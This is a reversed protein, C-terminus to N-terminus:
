KRGQSVVYALVQDIDTKNFNQETGYAKEAIYIELLPCREIFENRDKTLNEVIETCVKYSYETDQLFVRVQRAVETSLKLLKERSPGKIAKDMWDLTRRLPHEPGLAKKYEPYKGTRLIDYAFRMYHTVIRDDVYGGTVMETLVLGDRLLNFKRLTSGELDQFIGTILSTLEVANDMNELKEKDAWKVGYVHPLYTGKDYFLDVIKMVKSLDYLSYRHNCRRSVPDVVLFKDLVVYLFNKTPLEAAGKEWYDGNSGYYMGSNKFKLIYSYWDTSPKSVVQDDEGKTKLREKRREAAVRRAEKREVEEKKIAEAGAQKMDIGIRLIHPFEAVLAMAEKKTSLLLFPDTSDSWKMYIRVHRKIDKEDGSMWSVPLLVGEGAYMLGGELTEKSRLDYESGQYAYVGRTRYHTHLGLLRSYGNEYDMDWIGKASDTDFARCPIIDTTKCLQQTSRSQHRGCVYGDLKSLRSAPLALLEFPTAKTHDKGYTLEFEHSNKLAVHSYGFLDRAEPYLGIAYLNYVEKLAQIGDETERLRNKRVDDFVRALVEMIDSCIKGTVQNEIFTERNPALEMFGDVFDIVLRGKTVVERVTSQLKTHSSLLFDTSLPYAIGNIVVTTTSASIYSAKMDSFVRVRLPHGHLETTEDIVLEAVGNLSDVEWLEGDVVVPHTFYRIVEKLKNRANDSSVLSVPIEVKLGSPEDTAEKSILKAVGRDTEDPQCVWVTEMGGHYSTFIASSSIAFFSKCGIGFGGIQGRDDMKEKGTEGYGLIYREFDEDSLGPGYDRFILNQELSGPLTVEIPKECGSMRHADLGNAMFERLVAKMPDNYMDRLIRMIHVEAGRSIRYEAQREVNLSGSVETYTQQRM